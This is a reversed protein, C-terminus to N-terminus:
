RGMYQTIVVLVWGPFMGLADPLSAGRVGEWDINWSWLEGGRAATGQCCYGPLLVRATTVVM